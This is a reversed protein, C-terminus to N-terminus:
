SQFDSSSAGQVFPVYRWLRIDGSLREYHEALHRRLEHCENIGKVIEERVIQISESSLKSEGTSYQQRLLDLVARHKGIKCFLRIGDMMMKMYDDSSLGKISKLLENMHNQDQCVRVLAEPSFEELRQQSLGLKALMSVFLRHLAEQCDELRTRLEDYRTMLTDATEAMKQCPPVTDFPIKKEDHMMIILPDVPIAKEWYAKLDAPKQLGAVNMPQGPVKYLYVPTHRKQINKHQCKKSVFREYAEATTFPPTAKAILDAQDDLTWKRTLENYARNLVMAVSPRLTEVAAYENVLDVSNMPLDEPLNRLSTVQSKGQREALVNYKKVLDAQYAAILSM